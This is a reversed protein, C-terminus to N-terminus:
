SLSRARGRDVNEAAVVVDEEVQAGDGRRIRNHSNQM